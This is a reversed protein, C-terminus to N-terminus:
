KKVPVIEYTHAKPKRLEAIKKEVEEILPIYQPIEVANNGQEHKRFLFLYTENAPRYHHFYLENKRLIAQRLAEAQEREPCDSIGFAVTGDKSEAQQYAKGDIKLQYTGNPLGEVTVWRSSRTIGTTEARTMLRVTPPADDQATFKIGDGAKIASVSTGKIEVQKGTASLHAIWKDSVGNKGKRAITTAVNWYGFSTLHLQNDTYSPFAPMPAAPVADILDIFPFGKEVAFSKMADSYMEIYGNQKAPDPLPPGLMEMKYPGIFAIRAGTDEVAKMLDTLGKRFKELGDPGAFAENQGYAILLVTPNCSRVWKVLHEFGERQGGFRARAEGWVTDGSWGLNRFTINRDPYHSTLALEIYGYQSEREVFTNGLLVVRDGDKLEFEWPGHAKQPLYTSEITPTIQPAWDGKAPKDTFKVNANWPAIKNLEGFVHAEEWDKDDFKPKEWSRKPTLTAKWTKDTHFDHTKGDKTKVVVRAVLGAMADPSMCEVAITNEGKVLLPSIDFITGENWNNGAGVRAGNVLLIYTNDAAVEVRSSGKAKDPEDITFTKRFFVPKGSADDKTRASWIWQAESAAFAPAATAGFALLLVFTTVLRQM